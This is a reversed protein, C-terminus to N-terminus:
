RPAAAALLAAMAASGRDITARMAPNLHLQTSDYGEPLTGRLDGSVPTLWRDIDQLPGADVAYVRRNGASRV